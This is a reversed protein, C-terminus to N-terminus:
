YKQIWIWSFLELVVIVFHTLGNLKIEDNRKMKKKM